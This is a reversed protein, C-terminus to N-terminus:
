LPGRSTMLMFEQSGEIVLWAAWLVLAVQFEFYTVSADLPHSGTFAVTRPDVGIGAHFGSDRLICVTDRKTLNLDAMEVEM